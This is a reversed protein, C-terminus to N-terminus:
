AEGDSPPHPDFYEPYHKKGCDPCFTHSFKAESHSMVYSEVTSWTNNKDRIKKCFSCIPLIGELVNVKALVTQLEIILAEKREQSTRLATLASTVILFFGLRVAANWYPIAMYSYEHGALLDVILWALAGTVSMLIGIPRNLFWTSLVIPILYFISFSLEYGTLYDILSVIGILMFSLSMLVIVSQKNLYKITKEYIM